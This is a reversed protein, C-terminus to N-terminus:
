FDNKIWRRTADWAIPLWYMVTLILLAKPLTCQSIPIITSLLPAITKESIPYAIALVGVSFWYNVSYYGILEALRQVKLLTQRNNSTTSHLTTIM